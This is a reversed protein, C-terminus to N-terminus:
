KKKAKKKKRAAAGKPVANASRAGTKTSKGDKGGTGTGKGGKASASASKAQFKAEQGRILRALNARHQLIVLLGTFLALLCFPTDCGFLFTLVPLLLGCGVSCVSVIRTMAFLAFFVAAMMLFIRWDILLALIAGVTVGKGGRFDFFMPWCHGILCGIGALAFGVSGGLFNGLLVAATAKLADCLFTAFGFGMGYVRAANTAGANGSGYDRLDTHFLLRSLLISSSISGLAYGDLLILLYMWM